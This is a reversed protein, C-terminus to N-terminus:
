VTNNTQDWGLIRDVTFKMCTKNEKFRSSLDAIGLRIKDMGEGEWCLFRSYYIKLELTKNMLYPNCLILASFEPCIWSLLAKLLAVKEASKLAHRGTREKVNSHFGKNEIAAFKKKVLDHSVKADKIELSQFMNTLKPGYSLTMEKNLMEDNALAVNYFGQLAKSTDYFKQQTEKSHCMGLNNQCNKEIMRTAQGRRADTIQVKDVGMAAAM